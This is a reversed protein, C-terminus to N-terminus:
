ARDAREVVVSEEGVGFGDAGNVGDAAEAGPLVCVWAVCGDVAVVVEVVGVEVGDLADAAHEGGGAVEGTGEAGDGDVPM